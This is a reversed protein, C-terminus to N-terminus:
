GHNSSCSLEAWGDALLCLWLGPVVVCIVFRSALSSTQPHMHFLELPLSLLFAGQMSASM